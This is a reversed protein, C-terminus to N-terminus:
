IACHKTCHFRSNPWWFGQGTVQLMELPKPSSCRSGEALLQPQQYERALQLKAGGHSANRFYQFCCWAWPATSRIRRSSPSTALCTRSALVLQIYPLLPPHASLPGHSGPWLTSWLTEPCPSVHHYPGNTRKPEVLSVFPWRWSNLIMGREAAWNVVEARKHNNSHM